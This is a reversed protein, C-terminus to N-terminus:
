DIHPALIYEMPIYKMGRKEQIEDLKIFGLKSYIIEAYISSNVSITKIDNNNKITEMFIQFLKKGIGQGHFEKKVFFLSIHDYNRTELVGIIEYNCKAIFFKSLGNKYRELINIPEIYDKFTDNGEKSYDKGVFEDFVITIMNSYQNIEETKLEEFIIDNEM